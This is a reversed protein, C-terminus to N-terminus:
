LGSTGAIFAERSRPDVHQYERWHTIQGGAVRILVVGHYRHSGEYTYEAVGRQAREDFLRIHWVTRQPLGDDAEFFALLDARSGFAYRLPDAYRVDHAFWAVAAPYDRRAWADALADLMLEFEAVTM